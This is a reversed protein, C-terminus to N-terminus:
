WEFPFFPIKTQKEIISNLKVRLGMKLSPPFEIKDNELHDYWQLKLTLRKSYINLWILSKFEPWKFTLNLSLQIGSELTRGRRKGEHYIQTCPFFLLPPDAQAGSAETRTTALTKAASYNTTQLTLLIFTWWGVAKDRGPKFSLSEDEDGQAAWKLAQAIPDSQGLALGGLCLGLGSSPGIPSNSTWAKLM